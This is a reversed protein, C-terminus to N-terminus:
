ASEAALAKRRAKWWEHVVALLSIAIIALV